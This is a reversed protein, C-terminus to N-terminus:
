MDGREDKRGGLALPPRHVIDHSVISPNALDVEGHLECQTVNGLKNVELNVELVELKAQVNVIFDKPLM